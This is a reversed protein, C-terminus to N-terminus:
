RELHPSLAIHDGYDDLLATARDDGQGGARADSRPLVRPERRVLVNFDRNREYVERGHARLAAVAASGLTPSGLVELNHILERYRRPASICASVGDQSLSYRYCDAASPPRAGGPMARLMRGYCLASFTLVGVQRQRAIPLIEDEAGRHAANHRIMAVDWSHAGLAQACLGRDHTSFGIARVKGAAKLRDLCQYAQDSLRAESRAWFLLFIDIHDTRLRRLATEVDSEIAAPSAHFTGTAIHLGQRRARSARVFRTLAAHRPEWFFLDVGARHARELAWVPLDFVGSLALPAVEIGSKGLARRTVDPVPLDIDPASRGHDHRRRPAKSESAISPRDALEPYAALIGRLHQAVADPEQGRRLAAVLAQGVGPEFERALWTYASKRVVADTTGERGETDETDESGLLQRLHFDLRDMAALADAAATRVMPASDASLTLLAPLRVASEDPGTDPGALALLQAARMRLIPDPSGALIEAVQLALAASAGGGRREAVLHRALARRTRPDRERRHTDAGAVGLLAALREPEAIAPVLAARVHPDPDRLLAELQEPGLAGLRALAVGARARCLPDRDGLAEDLRQGHGVAAAAALLVAPMRPNRPHVILSIGAAWFRGNSEDAGPIQAGFRRPFSAMCKQRTCARRRSFAGACSRWAAVALIKLAM